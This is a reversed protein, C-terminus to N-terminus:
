PVPGISDNQQQRISQEQSKWTSITDNGFVFIATVMAIVVLAVCGSIIIKLTNQEM